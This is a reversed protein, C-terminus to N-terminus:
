KINCFFKIRQPPEVVEACKKQVLDAGFDRYGPNCFLTYFKQVMFAGHIIYM